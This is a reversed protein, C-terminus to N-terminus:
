RACPAQWPPVQAYETFLPAAHSSWFAQVVFSRQWSPAQTPVWVTQLAGGCTVTQLSAFM